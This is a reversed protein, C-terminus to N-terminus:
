DLYAYLALARITIRELTPKARVELDSALFASASRSGFYRRQETFGDYLNAFRSTRMMMMMMMMMMMLMM